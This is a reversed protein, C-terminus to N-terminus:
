RFANDKIEIRTKIFSGFIRTNGTLFLFILNSKNKIANKINDLELGDRSARYLLKIKYIKIKRSLLNTFKIIDDNNKLILSNINSVDNLFGFSKITKIFTDLYEDEIDLTINKNNNLKCKKINDNIIILNKINDEINICNNIILSLKHNDNWDNDVIKGKELSEKIKFPLKESEKIVKNNSFLKNLNIILKQYYNMKEKM